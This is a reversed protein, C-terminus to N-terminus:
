PGVLALSLNPGDPQSTISDRSSLYIGPLGSFSNPNLSSLFITRIQNFNFGDSLKERQFGDPVDFLYVRSEGNDIRLALGTSMDQYKNTLVKM